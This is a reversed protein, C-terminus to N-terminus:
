LGRSNCGKNGILFMPSQALADVQSYEVSLMVQYAAVEAGVAEVARVIVIRLVWVTLTAAL